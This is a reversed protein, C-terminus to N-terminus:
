RFHRRRASSSVLDRRVHTCRRQTSIRRCGPGVPIGMSRAKGVFDSVILFYGPFGTQNIIELEFSLRKEVEEGISGYHRLAGERAQEELLQIETYGEPLPFVPLYNKGFELKVECREAIEVTRVLADQNGPFLAYMEDPSKLYLEHSDFRLRKPDDLVKGTQICVLADQAEYHERYLYHSDNTVVLPIKLEGAIKILDPLVKREIELGHDMIEIFFNEPGLLDRLEAASRRAKEPEDRYILDALPGKACGSLVILGRRYTELDELGIRPKYYFGKTYGLSTLRILNRYGEYNEALLTLHNYRGAGEPRRSEPQGTTIYAEMGLIPKIGKKLAKKYFDIIGFMNGHDTLAIASMGMGAARKVLGSIKCAGDLLSYDSHNHLHVFPRDM